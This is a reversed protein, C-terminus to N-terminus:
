TCSSVRYSRYSMGDRSMSSGLLTNIAEDPAFAPGPRRADDRCLLMSGSREEELILKRCSVFQGCPHEFYVEQQTGDAEYLGEFM